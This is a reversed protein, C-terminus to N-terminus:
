VLSRGNKVLFNALFPRLRGGNLYRITEFKLVSVFCRLASARVKSTNVEKKFFRFQQRKTFFSVARLSWEIGKLIYCPFVM